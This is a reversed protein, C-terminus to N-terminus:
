NITSGTEVSDQCFSLTIVLLPFSLLRISHPIAEQLWIFDVILTHKILTDTGVEYSVSQGKRIFLENNIDSSVNLNVTPM